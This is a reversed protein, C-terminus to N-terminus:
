SGGLPDRVGPVGAGFDMAFGGGVFAADVELGMGIGGPFAFPRALAGDFGPLGRALDGLRGALDAAFGGDVALVGELAALGATFAPDFGGGRGSGGFFVVAGGATLATVGTMAIGVGEAAGTVELEVV